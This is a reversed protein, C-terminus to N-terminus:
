SLTYQASYVRNMAALDYAAACHKWVLARVFMRLPEALLQPNFIYDNLFLAFLKM